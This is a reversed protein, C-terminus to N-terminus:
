IRTFLRFSLPSRLAFLSSHLTFLSFKRRRACVLPCLRSQRRTGGRSRLERCLIRPKSAYGCGCPLRRTGGRRGRAAAAAEGDSFGATRSKLVRKVTLGACRTFHLAEPAVFFDPCAGSKKSGLIACKASNQLKLRLRLRPQTQLSDFCM